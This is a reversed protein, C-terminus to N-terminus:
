INTKLFKQWMKTEEPLSLSLTEKQGNNNNNKKEVAFYHQQRENVPSIYLDYWMNPSTHTNKMKTEATHNCGSYGGQLFCPM